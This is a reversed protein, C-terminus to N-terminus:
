SLTFNATTNTQNTTTVNQNQSTFGSASATVTYSASTNAEILVYNGNADTTATNAGDTVTAGAIATGSSNTVKGIITTVGQTQFNNWYINCFTSRTGGMGSKLSGQSGSIQWNPEPAGFAWVKGYSVAGVTLLKAHYWQGTIFKPVSVQKMMFWNENNNVWLQLTSTAYNIAFDIFHHGDTIRGLLRAGHQFADQGFQLVDFDGSVLQDAYTGGMWEDRDTAATFTNIFGQNGQISASAGTYRASDDLWTNGDSAPNWGPQDPRFYTDMSTFEPIPSSFAPNATSVNNNTVTVGGVYTANYGSATVVVSYTGAPVNALTYNGQSDTTATVGSSPYTSVNAGALPASSPDTVTGSISGIGGPNPTNTATATATPTNTATSTPTPTPTNTATSTPTPGPTNTATPAPTNTAAPTDTATPAPTNTSTPTPSVATTATPTPASGTTTVVVNDIESQARTTFSINGSTFSGDTASALTTGNISASITNGTVTLTWTYWTTTNYSTSGSALTTFTGNVKKGLFWANGNKVLLTYFDNADKHRSDIAVVSSGNITSNPGPKVSASFSYDTWTPDGAYISYLTSTSSSTQQLVNTTDLQTSWTTGAEQTWGAPVSGITDSEFDDSLLTSGVFPRAATARAQNVNIASITLLIGGVLLVLAVALITAARRQNRRRMAFAVVIALLVFVLVGLGIDVWLFSGGSTNDAAGTSVPGNTVSFKAPCVQDISFGNPDGTTAYILYNGPTVNQTIPAGTSEDGVPTYTVTSPVAISLNWAGNNLVGPAGLNFPHLHRAADVFYIGVQQEAPWRNGSITLRTGIPGASPSVSFKSTCGKSGDPQSSQQSTATNAAAGEVMMVLTFIAVIVALCVRLGLASGSRHHNM